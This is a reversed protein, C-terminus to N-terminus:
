QERYNMLKSRFPFIAYEVADMSDIDSTGNDLRKDEHKDDWLANNLASIMNPCSDLVFFNGNSLLYNVLQIREIIKGKECDGLRIGIGNKACFNQLGKTLVKGLAGYDCFAYNVHNFKNIVKNLRTSTYVEIISRKSIDTYYKQAKLM